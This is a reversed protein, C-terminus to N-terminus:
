PDKRRNDSPCIGHCRSRDPSDFLHFTSPPSVRTWRFACSNPLGSTPRGLTLKRCACIVVKCPHVGGDETYALAPWIGEGSLDVFPAEGLDQEFPSFGSSSTVLYDNIHRADAQTDSMDTNLSSVNHSISEPPLVVLDDNDHKMLLATLISWWFKYLKELPLNPHEM